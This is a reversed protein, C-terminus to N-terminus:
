MKWMSSPKFPFFYQVNWERRIKLERLRLGGKLVIEKPKKFPFLFPVLYKQKPVNNKDQDREIREKPLILDFNGLIKKLFEIKRLYEESETKTPNTKPPGIMQKVLMFMSTYEITHFIQTIDTYSPFNLSDKNIDIARENGEKRLLKEVYSIENLMNQYSLKDINSKERESSKTWIEDICKRQDANGKIKTLYSKIRQESTETDKNISDNKFDGYQIMIKLEKLTNELIEAIRKRGHDVITKFIKNFWDPNVIIIDRVSDSDFYIILGLGHLDVLYKEIQEIKLKEFKSLRENLKSLEIIPIEGKKEESIKELEELIIKHKLTMLISNEVKDYESSIIEILKLIGTKELKERNNVPFFYSKECFDLKFCHFNLKINM